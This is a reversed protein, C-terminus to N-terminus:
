ICTEFIDLGAEADKPDINLAPFICINEGQTNVLLGAKRCKEMIEEAYDEEKCDIGIALGLINFEVPKKFKMMRLRSSFLTSMDQIHQFLQKKNKLIYRVNAIAGDVAAPYWGYTSYLRINGEVKDAIEKTTITAGLGGYGGSISKAMTMIDPEIGFHEVAFMKGTTGFGSGVEDIVLLTGYQTCLDRLRQMFVPEPIMVGLNFIVPEMIFAAIDRKKLRTEVKKIAKEDLPPDIKYCGQMLGKKFMEANSSAGVSLTAISNGHYSGEISLFKNRGTYAMAIQIAAEVAETGGTVRYSKQLKGPTIEALLEAFEAWGKYLFRPYVYELRDPQDAKQKIEENGWGLNGVNWGMFFDLYRNGKADYVYSGKAKVVEIDEPATDKGVYKKDLTKTLM